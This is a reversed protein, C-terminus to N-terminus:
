VYADIDCVCFKSKAGLSKFLKFFDVDVKHGFHLEGSSAIGTLQLFKSKNAIADKIKGFDRHAIIIRRQFLYHNVLNFDEFKSLGFEKFVHEYNEIKNSGWADIKM